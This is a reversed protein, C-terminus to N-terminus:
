ALQKESKHRPKKPKPAPKKAAGRDDSNMSIAIPKQQSSMKKALKPLVEMLMSKSLAVFADRVGQSMDLDDGALEQLEDMVHKIRTFYSTLYDISRGRKLIGFDVAYGLAEIYRIVDNFKLYDGKNEMKSIVSQSVNLRAAMEKQSVGAHTRLIFLHRCIFDEDYSQNMAEIVGESEPLSNELLADVTKHRKFKM